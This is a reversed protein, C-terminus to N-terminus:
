CNVRAPSRDENGVGMAAAIVAENHTRIFLQGCKHFEFRRNKRNV